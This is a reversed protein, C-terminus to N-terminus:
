GGDKSTRALIWRRSSLTEPEALELRGILDFTRWTHTLMARAEAETVHFPDAEVEGAISVDCHLAAKRRRHLDGSLTSAFVGLASKVRPLDLIASFTDGDIRAADLTVYGSIQEIQADTGTDLLEGFRGSFPASSNLFFELVGAIYALRWGVNATASQHLDHLKSRNVPTRIVGILRLFKGTEELSYISLALASAYRRDQHLFHADNYLRLANRLVATGPESGHENGGESSSDAAM